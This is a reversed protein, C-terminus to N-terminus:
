KLFKMSAIMKNFVPSYRDMSAHPAQFLIYYQHEGRQVYYEVMRTNPDNKKSGWVKIAPQDGIRSPAKQLDTSRNPDDFEQKVAEEIRMGRARPTIGFVGRNEM